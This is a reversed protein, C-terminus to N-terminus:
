CIQGVSGEFFACRIFVTCLWMFSSRYSSDTRPRYQKRRGIQACVEGLYESHVKEDKDNRSSDVEMKPADPINKINM